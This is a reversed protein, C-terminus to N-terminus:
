QVCHKRGQCMQWKKLDARLRKIEAENESVEYRLSHVHDIHDGISVRLEAVIKDMELLVERADALEKIAKWWKFM